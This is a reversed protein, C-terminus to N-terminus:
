ATTDHVYQWSKATSACVVDPFGCLGQEVGMGQRFAIRM